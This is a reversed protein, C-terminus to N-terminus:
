ASQALRIQFVVSNQAPCIRCFEDTWRNCASFMEEVSLGTVDIEIVIHQSLANEADEEVRLIMPSGRFVTRSMTLLPQIYSDLDNRAALDLVDSPVSPLEVTTAAVM